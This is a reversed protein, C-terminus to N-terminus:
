ESQRCYTEGVGGALGELGLLAAVEDAVQVVGNGGAVDRGVVVDVDEKVAVAGVEQRRVARWGRRWGSGRNRRDLSIDGASGRHQLRDEGGNRSRSDAAGARAENATSRQSGGGAGSDRVKNGRGHRLNGGGHDDNVGSGSSHVFFM